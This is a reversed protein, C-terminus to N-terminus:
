ELCNTKLCFYVLWVLCVASVIDFAYLLPYDLTSFNPKLLSIFCFMMLSIISYFLAFRKELWLELIKYWGIALLITFLMESSMILQITSIPLLTHIHHCIYPWLVHNSLPAPMLWPARYACQMGNM